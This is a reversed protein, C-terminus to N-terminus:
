NPQDQGLRWRAVAGTLIGVALPILIDFKSDFGWDTLSLAPNGMVTICLEWSSMGEVDACGTPFLFLYGGVFAIIGIIVATLNSPLRNM